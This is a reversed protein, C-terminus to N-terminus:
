LVPTPTPPLPTDTPTPPLPTDTPTPPLPTDTPTPLIPTDTPTPLVPTPTDAPLPTWTPTAWGSYDPPVWDPCLVYISQQLILGYRDTWVLLLVEGPTGWPGAWRVVDRTSLLRTRAETGDTMWLDSTFSKHDWITFLVWGDFATFGAPLSGNHGPAIDKVLYPALWWGPWWSSEMAWLEQGHSGDDASFFFRDDLATLHQPESSNPGPNIDEVMAAGSDSAAWLERGHSGDDASFLLRDDFFAFQSPDSGQPSRFLM